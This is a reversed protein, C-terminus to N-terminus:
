FLYLMTLYSCYFYLVAEVHSFLMSSDFGSNSIYPLEGAQFLPLYFIQGELADDWSPYSLSYPFVMGTGSILLFLPTTICKNDCFNSLVVLRLFLYIFNIPYLDISPQQTSWDRQVRQGLFDRLQQHQRPQGHSCWQIGAQESGM